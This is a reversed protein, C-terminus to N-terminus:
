ESFLTWHLGKGFTTKSFNLNIVKARLFHASPPERVRCELALATGRPLPDVFVVTLIWSERVGMEGIRLM